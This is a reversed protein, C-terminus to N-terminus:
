TSCADLSDCDTATDIVCDASAQTFPESACNNECESISAFTGPCIQEVKQCAQTCSQPTAAGGAGGNGGAGGAGGSGGDGDSGCALALCVGAYSLVCMWWRMRRDQM